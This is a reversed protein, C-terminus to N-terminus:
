LTEKTIIHKTNASKIRKAHKNQAKLLYALQDRRREGANRAYVEVGGGIDYYGMFARKISNKKLRTEFQKKTLDRTM